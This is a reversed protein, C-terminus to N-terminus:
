LPFRVNSAIILDYKQSHFGQEIPDENLDLLQCQMNPCGRFEEQVDPFFGTSIDTFNYSKYRPFGEKAKLADLAIRTTGGTGGGIELIEM